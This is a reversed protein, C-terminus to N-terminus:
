YVVKISRCAVIISNNCLFEILGAYVNAIFCYFYCYQDIVLVKFAKAQNLNEGQAGICKSAARLISMQEYTRTYNLM